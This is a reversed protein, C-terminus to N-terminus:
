ASAGASVPAREIEALIAAMRRTDYDQVAFIKRADVAPRRPRRVKQLLIALLSVVSLLPTPLWLVRLGPNANRLRALLARKSALGPELLHLRDPAREPHRAMWALVTAARRVDIVGLRQGPSGVAVFVNGVRKGLRGPPEFAAEDVIPGPRVVHVRVRLEAGLSVAIRESELKGWVYPGRNRGAAPLPTEEDIAGRKELVAISSVQILDPVGAAAAARVVNATADISNRQHEDWSGATEAAAHVVVRAGALLSAPVAAGLDAVRYDVGGAREWAAPERRALVRVREGDAVLADVLARGLFGTGGTVVVDPRGGHVPMAARASGDAEALAAGVRECIATTDIISQPTLPSPRGDRVATYFADILAPLGSYSTTRTVVRGTLAATTGTLMQRAVRYPALAKDIGSSGPGIQRVVTGRVFDAVITGNSGTVRLYSEVPRGELTVVLSGTLDGRRVLAHLTGREGLELANLSTTGRTARELVDLLLYTPHPLVDLLQLDARLPVRGGPARRVPRFAFFSEVDVIRGLAPLLEATLRAPREFLLQHGSCVIRGRQAALDLVARAQQVSATFPKEVYVHCGEEIAALALDAHTDPPTCIHVVDIPAASLLEGISAFTRIAPDGAALSDRAAASPDVIASVTARELRRIADLHSRAMKGAGVIAVRVTPVPPAGPQYSSAPGSSSPALVSSM